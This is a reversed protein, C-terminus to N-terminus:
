EVSVYESKAAEVREHFVQQPSGGILVALEELVMRRQPAGVSM